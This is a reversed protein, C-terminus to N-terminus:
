GQLGAEGGHRIWLDLIEGAVADASRDSSDLVMDDLATEVLLGELETTRHLHWELGQPDDQHRAALRARRVAERATIRCILLPRGGLAQRYREIEAPDEIVGALVFTDIGALAYNAAMVKLNALELEHGFRDGLPAPWARRIADLDVIAHAIGRQKLADGLRDAVTTKGAGVTGNLFIGGLSDVM